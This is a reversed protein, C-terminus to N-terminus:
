SDVLLLQQHLANMLEIRHTLMAKGRDLSARVTFEACKGASLTILDIDVGDKVSKTLDALQGAADAAAILRLTEEPISDSEDDMATAATHCIFGANGLNTGRKPGDQRTQLWGEVLDLVLYPAVLDKKQGWEALAEETWRRCIKVLTRAPLVQAAVEVISAHTNSLNPAKLLAQMSKAIVSIAAMVPLNAQPNQLAKLTDQFLAEYDLM